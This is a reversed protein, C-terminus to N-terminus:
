RMLLVSGKKSFLEPRGRVIMDVSWSYAGDQVPAGKYNGDWGEGPTSSTFIEEGWRNFIRFVYHTINSGSVVPYFTENYNNQDPTFANPIYFQMGNYAEIM